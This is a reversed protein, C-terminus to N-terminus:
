SDGTFGPPRRREQRVRESAELRMREELTLAAVYGDLWGALQVLLGHATRAAPGGTVELRNALRPHANEPLEVIDIAPFTAEVEARREDDVLELAQERLRIYSSTLIPAADGTPQVDAAAKVAGHLRLLRGLDPESM